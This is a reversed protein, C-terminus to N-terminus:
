FALARSVPRCADGYETVGGDQSESVKESTFSNQSAQSDTRNSSVANYSFKLDFFPRNHCVPDDEPIYCSTSIAAKPNQPIYLVHRHTQTGTHRDTDLKM